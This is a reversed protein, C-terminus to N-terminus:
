VLKGTESSLIRNAVRVSSGVTVLDSTDFAEYDIEINGIDELNTLLEMLALSDIGFADLRLSANNPYNAIIAKRETEDLIGVLASDLLQLAATDDTLM